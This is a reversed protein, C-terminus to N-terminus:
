QCSARMDLGRLDTSAKDKQLVVFFQDTIHFPILFVDLIAFLLLLVAFAPRTYIPKKIDGNSYFTGLISAAWQPAGQTYSFKKVLFGVRESVERFNSENFVIWHRPAHYGGWYRREFLKRNLSSSNPTKIIAIGGPRMARYILELVGKPDCVHEILNFLIVVDFADIFDISDVNQLYFSHGNKEALGRSNPNLDVVATYRVRDDSSRLANLMWGSGGGVDLCSLQKEGKINKLTKRFFRRDLYEKAYNLLKQLKNKSNVEFDNSYYNDPYIDNLKEVPPDRLFVIQCDLCEYYSYYQNSTWYEIDKADSLFKTSHSSCIPCKIAEVM